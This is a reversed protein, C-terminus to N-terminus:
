RSWRKGSAFDPSGKEIGVTRSKVSRFGGASEQGTTLHDETDDNRDGNARVVGSM